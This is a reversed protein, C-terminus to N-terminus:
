CTTYKKTNGDVSFLIHVGGLSVFSCSSGNSCFVSAGGGSM